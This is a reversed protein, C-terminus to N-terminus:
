KKRKEHYLSIGVGEQFDNGVNIAAMGVAHQADEDEMFEESTIGKVRKAAFDIEGIIKQIIISDSHQM